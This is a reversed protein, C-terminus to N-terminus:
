GLGRKVLAAFEEMSEPKRHIRGAHAHDGADLFTPASSIVQCRLAPKGKRVVDVLEFGNMGPMRYDTVLLDFADPTAELAALVDRASAFVSVRHGQRSLASQLLSAYEADDDVYAVRTGAPTVATM